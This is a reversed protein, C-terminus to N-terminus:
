GYMLNFYLTLSVYTAALVVAAIILSIQWTLGFLLLTVGVIAAAAPPLIFVAARPMPERKSGRKWFQWWRGYLRRRFKAEDCGLLYGGDLEHEFIVCDLKFDGDVGVIFQHDLVVRGSTKLCHLYRIIEVRMNALGRLHRERSVWVRMIEGPDSVLYGYEGDKVLQM